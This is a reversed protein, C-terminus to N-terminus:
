IVADTQETSTNQNETEAKPEVGQVIITPPTIPVGNKGTLEVTETVKGSEYEWIIKAMAPNVRALKICNEVFDKRSFEGGKDFVKKLVTKLSAGRKSKRGMERAQESTKILTAPNKLM